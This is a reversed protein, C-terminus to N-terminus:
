LNGIAERVVRGDGVVKAVYPNTKLQEAFEHTEFEKRVLEALNKKADVILKHKLLYVFNLEEQGPLYSNAIIPLGWQLCETTTLGGPKCVGLDSAAYLEQINDIYGFLKVRPNNGYEKQLREYLQANGGCVVLAVDASQLTDEITTEGFGYGLSGGFILAVKSNQEIGLKMRMDAKTLNPRPQLTIGCVAIKKPDYGMSVMEEKQEDINALFMDANKYVWFRHLHFDSFTTVFKKKFYGTRKLYSLITSATIQTCIVLDYDAEELAAKVKKNNFAAPILRFPWALFLFIPNLYLFSWIGPVRRVISLYVSTGKESLFGKQVELINKLTITHGDQELAAAINYAIKKHGHGVAAYLILINKKQL